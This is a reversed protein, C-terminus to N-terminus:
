LVGLSRRLRTRDLNWAECLHIALLPWGITRALWVGREPGGPPWRRLGDGVGTGPGIGCHTALAALAGLCTVFVAIHGLTRPPEYATIRLAARGRGARAERDMAVSRARADAWTTLPPHFPITHTRGDATRLHMAALSLAVLTGGRAAAPSLHCFHQLYLSLSDAHDANMHHLIRARAADDHDPPTEAM